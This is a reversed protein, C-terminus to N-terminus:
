RIRQGPRWIRPLPRAGEQPASPSAKPVTFTPAPVRVSSPRHARVRLSQVVTPWRQDLYSASAAEALPIKLAVVDRAAQRQLRQQGGAEVWPRLYETDAWGLGIAVVVQHVMTRLGASRVAFPRLDAGMHRVTLAGSHVKPVLQNATMFVPAPVLNCQGVLTASVADLYRMLRRHTEDPLDLLPWLSAWSRRSCGACWSAAVHRPHLGFFHVEPVRGCPCPSARRFRMSGRPLPHLGVCRTRQDWVRDFSVCACFPFGTSRVEM